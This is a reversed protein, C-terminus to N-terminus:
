GQELLSRAHRRLKDTELKTGPVRLVERAIKNGLTACAILSKGRIWASLFAAAFADGAGTVDFPVAAFTGVRRVEGSAFVLVGKPGRKVVIIPFLDDATLFRLPAYADMYEQEDEDESGSLDMCYQADHAKLTCCFGDAESENMFLILPYRKGYDAIEAAREAAISVSAVDLSIVTGYRDAISFVRDVLDTRGLLFGDLAVVKAQRILDEPLHDAQLELAASPCAAVAVADGPMRIIACGGTPAKGQALVPLVGADKLDKEFIQSFADRKGGPGVGVAGVFVSRIGLLAAIKTVNAAGGGASLSPEPLAVLIETLRNYDVHSARNPHLGLLPGVEEDVAAFIDVLANGIGILEPANAPHV